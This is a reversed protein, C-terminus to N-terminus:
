LIISGGLQGGSNGVAAELPLGGRAEKPPNSLSFSEQLAGRGRRKRWASGLRDQRLMGEAHLTRLQCRAFMVPQIPSRPLPMPQFALVVLRVPEGAPANTQEQLRLRRNLVVWAAASGRGEGRNVAAVVSLPVAPGSAARRVRDAARRTLPPLSHSRAALHAARWWRECCHPCQPPALRPQRASTPRAHALLPLAFRARRVTASACYQVILIAAPWEAMEPTEVLCLQHRFSSLFLLGLQIMLFTAVNSRPHGRRRTRGLTHREGDGGGGM